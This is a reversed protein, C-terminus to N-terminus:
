QTSESHYNFSVKSVKPVDIHRTKWRPAQDEDWERNCFIASPGDMIWIYKDKSVKRRIQTTADRFFFYDGVNLVKFPILANSKQEM